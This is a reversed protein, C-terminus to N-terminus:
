MRLSNKWTMKTLKEISQNTDKYSSLSKTAIDKYANHFLNERFGASSMDDDNADM